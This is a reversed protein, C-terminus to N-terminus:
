DIIRSFELTQGTKPSTQGATDLKARFDAPKILLHLQKSSMQRSQGSRCIEARCKLQRTFLNPHRAMMPWTQGSLTFTRTSIKFDALREVIDLRFLFISKLMRLILILRRPNRESM